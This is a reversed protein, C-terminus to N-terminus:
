NCEAGGRTEDERRFLHCRGPARDRQLSDYWESTARWYFIREVGASLSVCRLIYMAARYNIVRYNSNRSSNFVSAENDAATFAGSGGRPHTRLPIYSPRHGPKEAANLVTIPNTEQRQDNKHPERTPMKLTKLITFTVQTQISNSFKLKGQTNKTINDTVIYIDPRILIYQSITKFLLILHLSCYWSSNRWTKSSIHTLSNRSM